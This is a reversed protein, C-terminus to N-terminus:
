THGFADLFPQETEPTVILVLHGDAPMPLAAEPNVITEGQHELAV